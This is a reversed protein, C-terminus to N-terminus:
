ICSCNMVLPLFGDMARPKLVDSLEEVTAVAENVRGDPLFNRQIFAFSVDLSKRKSDMPRLSSFLLYLNTRPPHTTSQPNQNSM